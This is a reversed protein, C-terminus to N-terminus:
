ESEIQDIARRVAAVYAANTGTGRGYRRASEQRFYRPHYGVIWRRGGAMGARLLPFAAHPLAFGLRAEAPEWYEPGAVVMVLGPNLMEVLDVILPGVVSDQAMKLAGRPSDARLDLDVRKEHGLPYINGWAVHAYWPEAPAYGLGRALDRGLTWFASGARWPYQLVGWLPEPLDSLWGKTGQLIRERGEADEPDLAAWRAPCEAADWGDLAQGVYFMGGPRFASGRTPWHSAIPRPGIQDAVRPIEVLLSRYRKLALDEASVATL